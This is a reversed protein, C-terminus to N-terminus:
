GVYNAGIVNMLKTVDENISEVQPSNPATAIRQYARRALLPDVRIKEEEPVAQSSAVKRLLSLHEKLASVPAGSFDSDSLSLIYEFADKISLQMQEIYEHMLLQEEEKLRTIRPLVDLMTTWMVTAEKETFHQARSQEDMIKARTQTLAIAKDLASSLARMSSLLTNAM